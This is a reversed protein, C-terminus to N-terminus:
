EEFKWVYGRREARVRRTEGRGCYRKTRERQGARREQGERGEDEGKRTRGEEGVRATTSGSTRGDVDTTM